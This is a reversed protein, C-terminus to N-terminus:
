RRSAERVRALLLGLSVLAVAALGAVDVWTWVGSRTSISGLTDWLTHLVVATAFAVAISWTLVARGNAERARWIVACVLGTWAAHGTPSLLARLLLTEEVASASGHSQRYAALGYGVTELSAFGMGVAAGFLLGDAEHRYRGRSYVFLPFILKASEEILGVGLLQAVGLHRLTEFEVLAAVSVGLGGGFVFATAVTLLPVEKDPLRERVWAVFAVPVTLAGVALVGPLLRVNGTAALSRELVFFLVFGALALWFWRHTVFGLRGRMSAMGIRDTDPRNGQM